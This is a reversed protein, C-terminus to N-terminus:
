GVREDHALSLAQKCRLAILLLLSTISRYNVNNAANDM